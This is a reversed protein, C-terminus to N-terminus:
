PLTNGLALYAYLVNRLGNKQARTVTREEFRSDGVFRYVTSDSDIVRLIIDIDVATPSKDMTEWIQGNANDRDFDSFGTSITVRSGDINLILEDAFVWRNDLFQARFRLWEFNPEQGIYLEFKNSAYGGGYTPRDHLWVRNNFDDNDRLLGALAKDKLDDFESVFDRNIATLSVQKPGLEELATRLKESAQIYNNNVVLEAISSEIEAEYDAVAQDELEALERPNDLLEFNVQLDRFAQLPRGGALNGRASSIVESTWKDRADGIKGQASNYRISDESKVLNFLRIASEYNRLDLAREAKEYQSKSLAILELRVLESTLSSRTPDLQLASEIEVIALDLNDQEFFEAASSIHGAIQVEKIVTPAALAAGGIALVAFVTIVVAKASRKKTGGPSNFPQTPPLQTNFQQVQPSQSQHLSKGCSPCFAAQGTISSGCNACFML